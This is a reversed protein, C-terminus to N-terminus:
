DRHPPADSPRSAVWGRYDEFLDHLLRLRLAGDLTTAVLRALLLLTEASAFIVLREQALLTELMATGDILRILDPPEIAVDLVARAPPADPVAIAGRRVVIGFAEGGIRYAGPLERLFEVLLVHHAPADQALIALARRAYARNSGPASM